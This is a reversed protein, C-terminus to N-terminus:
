AEGNRDGSLFRLSDALKGKQCGNVRGLPNALLLADGRNKGAFLAARALPLKFVILAVFFSTHPMQPMKAEYSVNV